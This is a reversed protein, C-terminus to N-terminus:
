KFEVKKEEVVKSGANIAREIREKLFKTAPQTTGMTGPLSEWYEAEKPNYDPMGDILQKAVIAATISLEFSPAAKAHKIQEKSYGNDAMWKFTHPYLDAPKYNEYYFSRSADRFRHYQEGTWDEWGEWSPATLKNGRKIRPAGRVVKKKKAKPLAM